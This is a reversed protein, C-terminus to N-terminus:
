FSLDDERLRHWLINIIRWYDEENLKRYKKELVKPERFFQKILSLLGKREVASYKKQKVFKLLRSQELNKIFNRYKTKPYFPVNWFCYHHIASIVFGIGAAFPIILSIEVKSDTLIEYFYIKPLLWLSIFVFSYGFYIFVPILYRIIKNFETM